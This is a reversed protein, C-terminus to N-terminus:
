DGSRIDHYVSDAWFSFEQAIKLALSTLGLYKNLNTQQTTLTEVGTNGVLNSVQSISQLCEFFSVIIERKGEQNKVARERISPNQQHNWKDLAIEEGKLRMLGWTAIYTYLEVAQNKQEKLHKEYEGQNINGAELAQTYEQRLDRLTTYAPQTLTRPDFTTM